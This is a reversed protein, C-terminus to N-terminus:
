SKVRHEEPQHWCEQWVCKPELPAPPPHMGKDEVKWNYKWPKLNSYSAKFQFYQLPGLTCIQQTRQFDSPWFAKLEARAMHGGLNFNQIRWHIADLDFEILCTVNWNNKDYIFRGCRVVSTDHWVAATLAPM